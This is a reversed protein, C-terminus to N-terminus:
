EENIINQNQSTAPEALSSSLESESKECDGRLCHRDAAAEELRLAVLENLSMGPRGRARTRKTHTKKKTKSNFDLRPAFYDCNSKTAPALGVVAFPM